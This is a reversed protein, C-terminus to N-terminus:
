KFCGTCLTLPPRQAPIYTWSGHYIGRGCIPTTVQSICKWVEEQTPDVLLDTGTPVIHITVDGGTNNWRATTPKVATVTTM